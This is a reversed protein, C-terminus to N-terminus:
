PCSPSRRALRSSPVRSPPIGSFSRGTASSGRGRRSASRCPSWFPLTRGAASARPPRAAAARPTAARRSVSMDASRLASPARQATASASPSKPSGLTRAVSCIRRWRGHAVRAPIGDAAPGRRAHLARLVGLAFARGEERAAGGDVLAGADGHMHRMAAALRADALGRLLGPPADDGPKSRLAEILLVEVLRTLVLDRGPGAAREIGRRRAEGAGFAARCRARASAGAAAVGAVGCRALRIAFYGGLLRVDPRGGRRGHRVEGTQAATTGASRAACAEGARLEVAHLRADGAPARLRGGRARSCGRWRCGASLSGRAGRLLETPRFDSYRVGWRGAGSIGKSFVTRPRLLAIIEALPDVM